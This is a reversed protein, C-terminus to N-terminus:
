LRGQDAADRCVLTEEHGHCAVQLDLDGVDAGSKLGMAGPERRVAELWMEASRCVTLSDVLEEVEDDEIPAAAAQRMLAVCKVSPEVASEGAYAGPQDSRESTDSYCGVRRLEQNM